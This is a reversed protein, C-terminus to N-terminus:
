LSHVSVSCIHLLSCHMCTDCTHFVVLFPLVSLRYLLMFMCLSVVSRASPLLTPLSTCAYSMRARRLQTFSLQSLWVSLAGHTCVM